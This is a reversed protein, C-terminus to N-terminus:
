RSKKLLWILGNREGKQRILGIEPELRRVWELCPREYPLDLDTKLEKWTKGDSHRRLETQILKKFHLYTM